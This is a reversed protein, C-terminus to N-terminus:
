SVLTSEEIEKGVDQVQCALNKLDDIENVMGFKVAVLNDCAEGLSFAGDQAQLKEVLANNISKIEEIYKEFLDNKISPEHKKKVPNTNIQMPEIKDSEAEEVSIDKENLSANHSNLSIDESKIENNNELHKDLNNAESNVALFQEQYKKIDDLKDLLYEPIYRVAGVGAWKPM